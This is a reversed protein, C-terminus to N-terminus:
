EVPSNDPFIDKGSNVIYQGPQNKGARDQLYKQDAQGIKPSNLHFGV